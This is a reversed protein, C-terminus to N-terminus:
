VESILIENITILLNDGPRYIKRVYPICQWITEGGLTHPFKELFLKKHTCVKTPLNIPPTNKMPFSIILDHWPPPPNRLHM